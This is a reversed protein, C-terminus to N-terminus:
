PTTLRRIYTHLADTQPTSLRGRFAPMAGRGNAVLANWAADLLGNASALRMAPLAGSRDNRGDAGHCSSCYAAYLTKGDEPPRAQDQRACGGCLVWLMLSALPLAFLSVRGRERRCVAVRRSPSVPRFVHRFVYPLTPMLTQLPLAPRCSVRSVERGCETVGAIRWRGRLVRGPM